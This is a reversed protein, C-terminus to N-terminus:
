SLRMAFVNPWSVGTSWASWAANIFSTGTSAAVWWQGVADQAAMDNKGDGTFDGVVFNNWGASPSWATWLSTNLASGTSLGVWWQGDQAVMGAVDAKGDNNFDAVQVNIWTVGTFWAGWFQNMFSSGTSIGAWWQGTELARGIIDSRGNGTLDAVHVDVWTVATSWTTWLSTRFSSGTSLGTWWQGTQLVRGIIDAKHDGNLDAVHVDSWTVAPSWTAWLSNTFSSGTSQAVFWQGTQLYRGIIDARGDGTFDGVQVDVWTAAPNWHGWLSWVFTSSGSNLGVWWDGSATRGAVDQRGDNNFDGTVITQWNAAPNWNVMFQNVFSNGISAGAWWGGASNVGVISAYPGPGKPQSSSVFTWGLDELGAFDLPTFADREGVNLVPDMTCHQGRDTTGDAWHQAASGAADTPVPGGYEAEAHPGVFTIGSVRNTWSNSTGFGLVHAIEHEAVSLFDTQAAQIGSPDAGFYWSTISTDFEVSGGWPAFATQQSNPGLTGAKGRGQVTDLWSQDGSANFGGPGGIGVAGSLAQGAAYVIITDSPVTLNNIQATAGSSPNTFVATWTDGLDPNPVIANLSDGIRSTLVNAATALLSERDPHNIFFGTDSSFDLQINISPTLRSELIELNPKRPDPSIRFQYSRIFKALAKGFIGMGM